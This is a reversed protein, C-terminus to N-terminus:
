NITLGRTLHYIQLSKYTVCRKIISKWSEGQRKKPDAGFLSSRIAASQSLNITPEGRFKEGEYSM